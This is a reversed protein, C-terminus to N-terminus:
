DFNCCYCCCYRSGNCADPILGLGARWDDDVELEEQNKKSEFLGSPMSTMSSSRQIETDSEYGAPLSVHPTSLNAVSTLTTDTNKKAECKRDPEELTMALDSGHPFSLNPTTPKEIPSYTDNKRAAWNENSIDLKALDSGDQISIHTTTLTTTEIRSLPDKKKAKCKRDLNGLKPNKRKRGGEREKMRENDKGRHTDNKWKVYDQDWNARFADGVKVHVKDGAMVVQCGNVNELFLGGRQETDLIAEEVFLARNFKGEEQRANEEKYYEKNKKVFLRFDENGPNQFTLGGQGGLVDEPKPKKVIDGPRFLCSRQLAKLKKYEEDRVFFADFTEGLIDVAYHPGCDLWDDMSTM